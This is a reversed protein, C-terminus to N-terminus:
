VQSDSVAEPFSDCLLHNQPDEQYRNEEIPYNGKEGTKSKRFIEGSVKFGLIMGAWVGDEEPQKKQDSTEKHYKLPTQILM